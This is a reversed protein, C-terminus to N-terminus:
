SIENIKKCGLQFLLRLAGAQSLHLKSSIDKLQMKQNNDMRFVVINTFYGVSNSNKQM